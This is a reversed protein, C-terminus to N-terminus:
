VNRLKNLADFKIASREFEPIVDEYKVFRNNSKYCRITKSETWPSKFYPERLKDDVDKIEAEAVNYQYLYIGIGKDEDRDSLQIVINSDGVWAESYYRIAPGHGWTHVTTSIKQGVFLHKLKKLGAEQIHSIYKDRMKSLKLIEAYNNEVFEITESEMIRRTTYVELNIIFDRLYIIWKNHPAKIYAHGLKSKLAQIFKDYSLPLWNKASSKGNPSIVVFLKKKDKYNDGIYEEYDDFPNNQHHFIKNEIAMVWDHGEILLDIRKNNKTQVERVPTRVLDLSQPIFDANLAEFFSDIFLTGLEHEDNPDLYFAFLDSIPNEYFGRGGVSYITKERIPEFYKKANQVVINLRTLDM